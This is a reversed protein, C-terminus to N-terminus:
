HTTPYRGPRRSRVGASPAPVEVDKMEFTGFVAADSPPTFFFSSSAGVRTLVDFLLEDMPEGDELVFHFDRGLVAALLQEERDTIERYIPFQESGILFEVLQM